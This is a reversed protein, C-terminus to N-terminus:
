RAEKSLRESLHAKVDPSLRAAAEIAALSDKNVVFEVNGPMQKILPAGSPNAIFWVYGRERDKRPLGLVDFESGLGNKIVMYPQSQARDRNRYEYSQLVSYETKSALENAGPSDDDQCATLPLALAFALTLGVFRPSTRM